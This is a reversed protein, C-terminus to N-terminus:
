KIWKGSPCRRFVRNYEKPTDLAKIKEKNRKRLADQFASKWDSAESKNSMVVAGYDAQANKPTKKTALPKGLLGQTTARLVAHGQQAIESLSANYDNVHQQEHALTENYECSGPPYEKAIFIKMKSYTLHIKASEVYYQKVTKGSADTTETDRYVPTVTAQESKSVGGHNFPNTNESMAGLVAAPTDNHVTATVPTTTFSLTIPLKKANSQQPGLPTNHTHTALDTAPPDQGTADSDSLLGELREGHPAAPQPRKTTEFPM